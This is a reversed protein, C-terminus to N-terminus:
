EIKPNAQSSRFAAGELSLLQRKAELGGAYGTLTRDSGIVRHCPAFISLANAGNANAVARVAKPKGIRLALERYSVTQGYPILLLERWVAKQFDTGAFLLPISFTKRRRAFYEDLQRATEAIVESVGEEFEAHLLRRLRNTVQERCGEAQWDCLCLKGDLSGLLLDGCPSHYCQTKVTREM